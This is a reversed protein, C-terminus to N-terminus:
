HHIQEGEDSGCYDTNMKAYGKFAIEKRIM